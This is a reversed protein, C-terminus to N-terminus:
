GKSMTMVAAEAARQLVECPDGGDVRDSIAIIQQDTVGVSLGCAGNSRRDYSDQFVGPFGAIEVPEFYKYFNPITQNQYIGSLGLPQKANLLISLIDGNDNRWQCSPGQSDNVEQPTGSDFGLKAADSGTLMDCPAQMFKDLNQVPNDVKPASANGTTPASSGGTDPRPPYGTSDPNEDSCAALGLVTTM